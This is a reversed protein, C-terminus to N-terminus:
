LKLHFAPANVGQYLTDLRALNDMKWMHTESQMFMFPQRLPESIITQPLPEYWGDQALGAKCRADIHCTWVIAGGGLSIPLACTQVGTVCHDRIGDEAQFFFFLVFGFDIEYFFILM